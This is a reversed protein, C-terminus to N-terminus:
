NQMEKVIKVADMVADQTNQIKVGAVHTNCKEVPILIRMAKSNGVAEAMKPTVEGLLSNAIVIGIPGIIVDAKESCVIVPNEGTAAEDAGGKLMAATAMANTGVATVLIEPSIKKIEEVLTKGIRGGQGDIILVNM